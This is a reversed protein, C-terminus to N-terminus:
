RHLQDIAAAERAAKQEPGGDGGGSSQGHARFRYLGHREVRASRAGEVVPDDLGLRHDDPRDRTAARAAPDPTAPPTSAAADATPAPNSKVLVTTIIKGMPRGRRDQATFGSTTVDIARQFKGAETGSIDAAAECPRRHRGWM